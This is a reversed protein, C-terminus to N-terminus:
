SVFLTNTGPFSRGGERACFGREQERRAERREERSKEWRAPILFARKVGMQRKKKMEPEFGGKESGNIDKREERSVPNGKENGAPWKKDRSAAEDEYWM